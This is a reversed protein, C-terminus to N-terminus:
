TAFGAQDPGGEAPPRQAARSGVRARHELYSAAALTIVLTAIAFVSAAGYAKIDVVIIKRAVAILAVELVIDVRVTHSQLYVKITELLEIAILVLLVLGLIDLLEEIGLLAVPPAALDKIVIWALDLTAIAIVLMMLVILAVVIAHEFRRIVRYLLSEPSVPTTM